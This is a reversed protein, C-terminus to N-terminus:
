IWFIFPSVWQLYYKEANTKPISFRVQCYKPFVCKVPYYECTITSCPFNWCLREYQEKFCLNQYLIKWGERGSWHLASDLLIKSDENKPTKVTRIKTSWNLKIWKLLKTASKDRLFFLIERIFLEFRQQNYFHMKPERWLWSSRELLLNWDMLKYWPDSM